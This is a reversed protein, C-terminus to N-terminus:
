GALDKDAAEGAVHEPPIRAPEAAAQAGLFSETGGVLASAAEHHDSATVPVQCSCCDSCGHCKECLHNGCTDKTCVVCIRTSETECISCAFPM